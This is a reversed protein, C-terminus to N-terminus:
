LFLLSTEQDLYSQMLSDRNQYRKKMVAETRAAMEM